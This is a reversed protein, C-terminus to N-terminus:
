RALQCTLQPEPSPKPRLPLPSHHSAPRGSFLAASLQTDLHTIYSCALRLTEIKSLKRDAPQTPIMTRLRSFATNVNNTRDREKANAFVRVPGTLEAAAGYCDPGHCLDGPRVEM